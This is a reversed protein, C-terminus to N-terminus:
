ACAAGGLHERRTPPGPASSWRDARTDYVLMDEALVDKGPGIGAALYINAGIAAVAGAARGEPLDAVSQWRVAGLGGALGGTPGAPVGASAGAPVALRFAAASPNGDPLYGGFVYVTGDISAAMAHNVGLPLPPGASWSSTATDFIEVTTVTGGDAQFGGAVVVYAGSVAAAVETRASPADPLRRWSSGTWDAGSRSSDPRSTDRASPDPEPEASSCATLGLLLAATWLRPRM